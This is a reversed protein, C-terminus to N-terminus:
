DTRPVEFRPKIEYIKKGGLGGDREGKEQDRVRKRLPILSSEQEGRSLIYAIKGGVTEKVKEGPTRSAYRLPAARDSQVTRGGVAYGGTNRRSPTGRHSVKPSSQKEEARTKGTYLADL